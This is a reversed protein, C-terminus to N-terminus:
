FFYGFTIEPRYLFGGGHEYNSFEYGLYGGTRFYLGSRLIFKYGISLALSFNQIIDSKWYSDEKYSYILNGDNDYASHTNGEMWHQYEGGTSYGMMGGVYFGGLRSPLFYNFVVGIGFVGSYNSLMGVSPFMLNLQFNFRGKTLEASISPGSFLFGSPDAYLGFTLKDPNMPYATGSPSEAQTSEQGASPVANVIELLGNEYRISLVDSAPIVYVPGDLNDFRKYRIETSSVEMVKAEIANGDKMVILDQANASFVGGTFLFVAALIYFQRM